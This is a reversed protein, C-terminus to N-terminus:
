TFFVLVSCLNFELYAKYSNPTINMSYQGKNTPDYLYWVDSNDFRLPWHLAETKHSKCLSAMYYISANVCFLLLSMFRICPKLISQLQARFCFCHCLIHVYSAKM